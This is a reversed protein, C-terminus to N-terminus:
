RIRGRAQREEARRFLVGLFGGGGGGGGVGVGGM